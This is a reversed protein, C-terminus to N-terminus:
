RCHSMEINRVTLKRRLWVAEEEVVCAKLTNEDEAIM